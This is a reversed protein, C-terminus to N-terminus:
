SVHRMLYLKVQQMSKVSEVMEEYSGRDGTQAYRRYGKVLKEFTGKEKDSLSEIAKDRDVTQILRMDDCLWNM